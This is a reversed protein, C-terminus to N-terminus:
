LTLHIIPMFLRVVSVEDLQNAMVHGHRLLFPNIFSPIVQLLPSASAHCLV